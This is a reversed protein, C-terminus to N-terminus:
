PQNIALAWGTKHRPASPANWFEIINQSCFFSLTKEISLHQFPALRRLFSLIIRSLPRLLINTDLLVRM